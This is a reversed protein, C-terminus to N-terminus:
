CAKISFSNGSLQIMGVKSLDVGKFLDALIVNDNEYFKKSPPIVLDELDKDEVLTM